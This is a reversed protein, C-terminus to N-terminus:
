CACCGQGVGEGGHAIKEKATARDEILEVRLM